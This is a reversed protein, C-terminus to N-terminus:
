CASARDSSSVPAQEDTQETVQSPFHAQSPPSCPALENDLLQLSAPLTFFPQTTSTFLAIPCKTLKRRARVLQRTRRWLRAQLQGDDLFPQQQAGVRASWAPDNSGPTGRPFDM